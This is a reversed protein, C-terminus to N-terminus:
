PCFDFNESTAKEEDQRATAMQLCTAALEVSRAVHAVSYRNDLGLVYQLLELRLCPSHLHGIIEEIALLFRVDTYDTITNAKRLREAFSKRNKVAKKGAFARFDANDEVAIKLDGQAARQNKWQAIRFAMSHKGLDVWEDLALIVEDVRRKASGDKMVRLIQAAGLVALLGDSNTASRLRDTDLPPPPPASIPNALDMLGGKSLDPSRMLQDRLAVTSDTEKSEEGGVDSTRAAVVSYLILLQRSTHYDGSRVAYVLGEIVVDQLKHSSESGGTLTSNQRQDNEMVSTLLQKVSQDTAGFGGALRALEEPTLTECISGDLDILENVKQQVFGEDTHDGSTKHYLHPNQFPNLRQSAIQWLEGQFAETLVKVGDKPTVLLLPISRFHDEGLVHRLRSRKRMMAILHGFTATRVFLAIPLGVGSEYSPLSTQGTAADIGDVIRGKGGVRVFIENYPVQSMESVKKNAVIYEKKHIYDENYSRIVSLPVLAEKRGNILKGRGDVNFETKAAYGAPWAWTETQEVEEAEQQQSSFNTPLAFVIGTTYQTNSGYCRMKLGNPPLLSTSTVFSNFSSGEGMRDQHQEDRGRQRPQCHLFRQLLGPWESNKITKVVAQQQELRHVVDREAATWAEKNSDDISELLPQFEENPGLELPPLPNIFPQFGRPPAPSGEMESDPDDLEGALALAALTEGDNTKSVRRISRRIQDRFVIDRATCIEHYHLSPPELAKDDNEGVDSAMSSQHSRLKRIKTMKSDELM